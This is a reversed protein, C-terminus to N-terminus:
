DQDFAATVDRRAHIVRVVEVNDGVVDYFITVAREFPISRLGPRVEDRPRGRRPYDTLKAAAGELRQVFRLAVDRDAREATWLYIRRLDAIAPEAWDVSRTASPM